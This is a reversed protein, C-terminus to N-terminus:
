QLLRRPDTIKGTLSSAALTYASSLYITSNVNGMRGPVNLTATSLAVQGDALVGLQGYCFDCSPYYMCVGANILKEMLGNRALEAQIQTTTPVGYFRFEKSVKKGKLLSYADQFDTMRGSACSGLYGVDVKQGEVDKISIINASTPPAALTPEVENLNLHVVKEYVADTDPAIPTYTKRVRGRLYNTVQEDVEMISSNAGLFMSLNCITLRSDLPLNRLGEGGYEVVSGLCGAPGLEKVLWHFVDRGGVGPQLKGSLEVRVTTPVVVLVEDTAFAEIISNRMSLAYCGFAGLTSVHGDFHVIMSGPTVYGEEALVQHGIGRDEYLTMGFNKAFNRTKVHVERFQSAGAPNFHDIFLIFKEPHKVSTMGLENVLQHEYSDIYGPYDYATVYDPSFLKEEGAYVSNGYKSSLIKEVMTQGM